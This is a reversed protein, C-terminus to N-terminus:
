RSHGSVYEQTEPSHAFHGVQPALSCQAAPAHTAFWFAFRRTNVVAGCVTAAPAQEPATVTLACSWAPAGAGGAASTATASPDLEALTWNKESSVQVTGAGWSVSAAPAAPVLKRKLSPEAPM